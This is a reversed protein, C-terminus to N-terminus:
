WTSPDHWSFHHVASINEDHGPKDRGDVDKTRFSLRPHGSRLGPDHRRVHDELRQMVASWYPFSLDIRWDLKQLPWEGRDIAALAAATGHRRRALEQLRHAPRADLPLAQEWLRRMEPNTLIIKNFCYHYIFYPYARVRDQLWPSFWQLTSASNRGLVPQLAHLAIRGFLDHQHSFSRSNIFAIFTEHLAALLASDKEAAVFWSSALRDPGPNHFAVLGGPSRPPLWHELPRLCYVTSDVWVGGYRRLLCLRLIDSVKQVTLDSRTLDAVDRLAVWDNLSHRDLAVVRWEPNLRRWSDLCAHVLPPAQDFGQHWFTWIVRSPVGRV